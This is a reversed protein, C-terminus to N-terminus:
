ESSDAHIVSSGVTDSEQDPNPQGSTEGGADGSGSVVVNGVIERDPVTVLVYTNRGERITVQQFAPQGRVEGSRMPILRLQHEGVPAEARLVQIQDPLLGWCRTDATETAEWAVGVVNLALSLASGQSADATEKLAYIAGKKLIRRAITRGLIEPLRAAHQDCAMAGVDMLTATQGLHQDNVSVHLGDLLSGGRVVRPIKVPALTPQVSRKATASLIRDAVLLAAQTPIEDVSEKYPGRGLLVFVYLSGQGAGTPRGTTARQLDPQGFPFDPQYSVVQARYRQAEGFTLPSEEALMARVYPGLAVQKYALLADPLDDGKDQLRTIIEQQKDAAQLAYAEADGGDHMLNALSLMARVLVHEYDEGAYARANDDTVFSLATEGVSVQEYSDFRDRVGRMLREASAARGTVLQIMAQDLQLVERERPRDRELQTLILAESAGVRGSYFETRVPLLRDSHTACGALLVMLLGSLSVTLRLAHRQPLPSHNM